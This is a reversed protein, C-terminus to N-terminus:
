TPPCFASIIMLVTILFPVGAQTPDFVVDLSEPSSITSIWGTFLGYNWRLVTEGSANVVTFVQWDQFLSIFCTVLGALFIIKYFLNSKMKM